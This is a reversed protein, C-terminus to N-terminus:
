ELGYRGSETQIVTSEPANLRRLATRILELYKAEDGDGLIEVDINSGTEGTGTGTVEGDDGLAEEIEDEVEDLALESNPQFYIFIDM